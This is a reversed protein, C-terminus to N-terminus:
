RLDCFSKRESVEGMAKVFSFIEGPPILVGSLRGAGLQINYRREYSSGAFSASAETLLQRIGLNYFYPIGGRDRDPRKLATRWPMIFAM